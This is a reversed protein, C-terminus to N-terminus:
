GGRFRYKASCGNDEQRKKRKKKERERASVNKGSNEKKREKAGCATYERRRNM